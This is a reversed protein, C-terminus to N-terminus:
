YGIPHNLELVTTEPLNLEKKVADYNMMARPVTKLGLAACMLCINQSAYGADTAGYHEANGRFKSLDSVLLIFVPAVAMATQRECLIPRIDKKTVETLTNAKPDYISVGKATCVYAKIDQANTATPITLLGREPNNIGCAAWLLQSIQQDSVAKDAQYDRYSRRKQMAETISVNINMDPQPLKKVDQASVCLSCLAFCASIAILKKM